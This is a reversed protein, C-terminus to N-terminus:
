FIKKNFIHSTSRGSVQYHRSEHLTQFFFEKGPDIIFNNEVINKAFIGPQYPPSGKMHLYFFKRIGSYNSYVKEINKIEFVREPKNFLSLITGPIYTITEKDLYLKFFTLDIVYM